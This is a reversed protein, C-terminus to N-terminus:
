RDIPEHIRVSMIRSTTKWMVDLSERMNELAKIAAGSEVIEIKTDRLRTDESIIAARRSEISPKPKVGNIDEGSALMRGVAHDLTEKSASHIALLRTLKNNTQVWYYATKALKESLIMLEPNTIDDEDLALEEWPVALDEILKDAKEVAKRWWWTQKEEIGDDVTISEPNDM